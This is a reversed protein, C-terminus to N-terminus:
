RHERARTGAVRGPRRPLLVSLAMTRRRDRAARRFRRRLEGPGPGYARWEYRTDPPDPAEDDEGMWRLLCDLVRGALDESARLAALDDPDRGEAVLAEGVWDFVRRGFAHELVDTLVAHAADVTVASNLALEVEVWGLLTYLNPGGPGRDLSESLGTPGADLPRAGDTMPADHWCFTAV